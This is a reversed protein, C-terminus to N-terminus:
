GGMVGLEIFVEELENLADRTKNVLKQLEPDSVKGYQQVWYDFGQNEIEGYLQEVEDEPLNYKGM